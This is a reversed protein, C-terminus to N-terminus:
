VHSPMKRINRWNNPHDPPKFLAALTVNQWPRLELALLTASVGSAPLGSIRVLDDVSRATDDLLRYVQRERQNLSALRPHEEPSVVSDDVDALLQLPPLEELIEDLNTVLTAGDRLLRNLGSM